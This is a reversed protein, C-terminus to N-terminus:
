CELSSDKLAEESLYAPKCIVEPKFALQRSSPKLGKFHCELREEKDVICTWKGGCLTCAKDNESWVSSQAQPEKQRSEM